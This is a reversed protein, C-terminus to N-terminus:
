NKLSPHGCRAREAECYACACDSLQYPEDFAPDEDFAGNLCSIVWQCGIVASFGTRPNGAEDMGHRRLWVCYAQVKEVRQRLTKM